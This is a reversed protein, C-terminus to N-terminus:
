PQPPVSDYGERRCYYRTQCASGPEDQWSKGSTDTWLMRANDGFCLWQGRGDSGGGVSKKYNYMSWDGKVTVRFQNADPDTFYTQGGWYVQQTHDIPVSASVNYTILPTEGGQSNDINDYFAIRAGSPCNVLYYVNKAIEQPTLPTGSPSPLPSASAFALLRFALILISWIM